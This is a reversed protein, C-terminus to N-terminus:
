KQKLDPKQKKKRLNLIFALLAWVVAVVIFIASVKLWTELNQSKSCKGQACVMGGSCPTGDMADDYICKGEKCYDISCPNFDNCLIGTCDNAAIPILAIPVKMDKFAATVANVKEQGFQISYNIRKLGDKPITDVDFKIIPEKELVVFNLDSKIFRADDTINGPITEILSVTNLNEGSVNQLNLTFTAKYSSIGGAGFLAVTKMERSFFLDAEEAVKKEIEKGETVEVIVLNRTPMNFGGMPAFVGGLLLIFLIVAFFMTKKM